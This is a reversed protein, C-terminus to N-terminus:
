VVPLVQIQVCDDISLEDQVEVDLSADRATIYAQRDLQFLLLSAEAKITVEDGNPINFILNVIGGEEDVTSKVSVCKDILANWNNFKEYPERTIAININAEIFAEFLFTIIADAALVASRRHHESLRTIYGEKGHSVPGAKNRLSNLTKALEHHASVMGKFQDDRIDGLKLAIIACQLWNGISPEKQKPRCPENDTHFEDVIINCVVEVLSKAADIVSDNDDNFATVFAEYTQQLMPADRWHDCARQIGPYWTLFSNM